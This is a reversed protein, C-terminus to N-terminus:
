GYRKGARKMAVAGVIIPATVISLNIWKSLPIEFDLTYTKDPETLVIEKTRTEFPTKAVTIKYTGLPIDALNYTGDVTEAEKIGCISVKAGISPRKILGFLFTEVVKGSINATPPKVTLRGLQFRREPYPIYDFEMAEICTYQQAVIGFIRYDGPIQPVRFAIRGGFSQGPHPGPMGYYICPYLPLDEIGMVIQIINTPAEPPTWVSGSYTVSAITGARAVIEQPTIEINCDATEPNGIHKLSKAL